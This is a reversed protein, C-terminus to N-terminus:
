RAPPPDDSPAPDDPPGPADTPPPDAPPPPDDGTPPADNDTTEDPTISDGLADIARLIVEPGVFNSLALVLQMSKVRNSSEKLSKIYRIQSALEKQEEEGLNQMLAICYAPLNEVAKEFDIESAIQKLMRDREAARSRDVSRDTVSLLTDLLVGPGISVDQGSINVRFVSTRLVAASGFGAALVQTVLLQPDAQNYPTDAYVQLLFLAFVSAGANVLMYIIGGTTLVAKHPADRYRSLIEVMGVFAGICLCAVDGPYIAWCSTGIWILGIIVFIALVLLTLVLKFWFGFHSSM